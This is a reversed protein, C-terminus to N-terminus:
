RELPEEYMLYDSKSMGLSEYVRQAGVNDKEVYLRFGCVGGDNRARDRVFEYLRRYIGQRRFSPTVYVSQIWWFDANRWDSWEFTVMLAAVIEGACEAVVYFGRASEDFVARVGSVVIAEPLEKNETELAMARNFRVFADGDAADAVRVKLNEDTMKNQDNGGM